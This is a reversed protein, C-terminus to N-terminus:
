KKKCFNKNHLAPAQVWLIKVVAYNIKIRALLVRERNDINM